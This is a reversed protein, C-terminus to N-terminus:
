VCSGLHADIIKSPWEYLFGESLVFLWPKDILYLLLLLLFLPQKRGEDSVLVQVYTMCFQKSGEHICKSMQIEKESHLSKQSLSLPLLHQIKSQSWRVATAWHRARHPRQQDQPGGTISGRLVQIFAWQEAVAELIGEEWRLLRKIKKAHFAGRGDWRQKNFYWM